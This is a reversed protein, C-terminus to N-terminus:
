RHSAAPKKNRYMAADADRLLAEIDEGGAGADAIGISVGLRAAPYDSAVKRVAETIRAAAESAAGSATNWLLIAFEDGGLRAAFDGARISERLTTGIRRLVDDGTEHGYCDNVSKFGDLDLYLVSLALHERRGRALERDAQEIFARSNALGTIADTRALETERRLASQLRDNMASLENRDARVRYVLLATASYIVVRTFGNWIPYVMPGSRSLADSTIWCVAALMAASVASELHGRWAIVSIPILYFLSLGLEPGTIYDLWGITLILPFAIWQAKM